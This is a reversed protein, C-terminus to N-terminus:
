FKLSCYYDAFVELAVIDDTEMKLYPPRDPSVEVYYVIAEDDAVGEMPTIPKLICYLKGGRMTVSVRKFLAECGDDDVLRIPEADDNKLLMDYLNM